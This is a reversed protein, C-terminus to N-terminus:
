PKRFPGTLFLRRKARMTELRLPSNSCGSTKEKEQEEYSGANKDAQTAAVLSEYLEEARMQRLYFRSFKPDEGLLPDDLTVNTTNSQSSLGYPASLTIWEAM